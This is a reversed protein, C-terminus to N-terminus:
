LVTERTSDHGDPFRGGSALGLQQNYPVQPVAGSYALVHEVAYRTARSSAEEVRDWIADQGFGSLSQAFVETVLYFLLKSKLV